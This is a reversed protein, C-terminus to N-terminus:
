KAIYYGTLKWIPLDVLHSVHIWTPACLFADNDTLKKIMAAIVEKNSPGGAAEVANGSSLGYGLPVTPKAADKFHGRVQSGMVSM